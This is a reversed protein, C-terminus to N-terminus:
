LTLMCHSDCQQQVTVCVIRSDAQDDFVTSATPSLLPGRCSGLRSGLSHLLLLQDAESTRMSWLCCPCPVDLCRASLQEPLDDAENNIHWHRNVNNSVPHQSPHWFAHRWMIPLCAQKTYKDPQDATYLAHLVLTCLIKRYFWFEFKLLCQQHFFTRCEHLDELPLDAAVWLQVRMPELVAYLIGDATLLYFPLVADMSLLWTSGNKHSMPVDRSDNQMHSMPMHRSDHQTHSMFVRRSANKHSMPVHRSDNQTQSEYNGNRM